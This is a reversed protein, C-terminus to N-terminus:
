REFCTSSFVKMVCNGAIKQHMRRLNAHSTTRQQHSEHTTAENTVTCTLGIPNTWDGKLYIDKILSSGLTYTEGKDRSTTIMTETHQSYLKDLIFGSKNSTQM